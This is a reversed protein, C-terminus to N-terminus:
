VDRRHRSVVDNIEARSWVFPRHPWLENKESRSVYKRYFGRAAARLWTLEEAGFSAVVRGSEAAYFYPDSTPDTVDTMAPHQCKMGGFCFEMFLRRDGTSNSTGDDKALWAHIRLSTVYLHDNPLAVWAAFTFLRGLVLPLDLLVLLWAGYSALTALSRLGVLGLVLRMLFLPAILKYTISMWEPEKSNWTKTHIHKRSAFDRKFHRPPPPPPPPKSRLSFQRRLRSRRSERVEKSPAYERQTPDANSQDMPEPDLSEGRVPLPREPTSMRREHDRLYHELNFFGGKSESHPRENSFVFGSLTDEGGVSSDDASPDARLARSPYLPNSQKAGM